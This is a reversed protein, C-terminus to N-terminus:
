GADHGGLSERRETPGDPRGPLPVIKEDSPEHIPECHVWTTIRTLNGRAGEARVKAWTDADVVESQYDHPRDTYGSIRYRTM